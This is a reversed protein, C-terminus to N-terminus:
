ASDNVGPPAGFLEVPYLQSPTVTALQVDFYSVFEASFQHKRLAWYERVGQNGFADIYQIMWSDFIAGVFPGDKKQYYFSELTRLLSAIFSMFSAAESGKLNELGRIGRWFVDRFDAETLRSLLESYQFSFAQSTAARSAQTGQKVQLGVYILSGIIAIGGVLEGMAGWEMLTM